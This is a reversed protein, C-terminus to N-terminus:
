RRRTDILALVADNSILSSGRGVLRGDDTEVIEATRGGPIITIGGGYASIDVASGLELGLAERLAKPLLVRGGSDLTAEM